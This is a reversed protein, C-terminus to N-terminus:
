EEEGSIRFSHKEQLKKTLAAMDKESCLEIDLTHDTGESRASEFRLMAGTFSFWVRRLKAPQVRFSLNQSAWNNGGDIVDYADDNPSHQLGLGSSLHMRDEVSVAALRIGWPASAEKASRQQKVPATSKHKKDAVGFATSSYHSPPFGSQSEKTPSGKRTSSSGKSPSVQRSTSGMTTDGSLVDPSSNPEKSRAKGNTARFKDDPRDDKLEVEQQPLRDPLDVVPLVHNDSAKTRRAFYRSTGGTDQVPLSRLSVKQALFKKHAENATGQYRSQNTAASPPKTTEEDDSLDIPSAASTANHVPLVSTDNGNTDEIPLRRGRWKGKHKRSPDSNMTYEVNQFEPIDFCPKPRERGQSPISSTQSTRQNNRVLSRTAGEQWGLEDVGDSSAIQSIQDLSTPGTKLRKTPREELTVFENLGQTHKAVNDGKIVEVQIGRRNSPPINALARHNQDQQLHHNAQSLTNKPQPGRRMDKKHHAPKLSTFIYGVM